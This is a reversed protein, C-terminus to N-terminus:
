LKIIKRTTVYDKSRITVFYVGKPYSSLDIQHSSGEMEGSYIEQGNLSLIEVSYQDSFETEITLLSNTPNPFISLQDTKTNTIGVGPTVSVHCSDKFNGDSTMVYIYTQGVAIGTVTGDAVTAVAADASIWSVSPDPADAPSITHVLTATESGHLELSDKDLSIGTVSIFAKLSDLNFRWVESLASNWNRSNISYGGMLYIYNGVKQGTMDSRKFPMGEMLTWEDTTPDYEQIINSPYSKSTTFTGSDGGFLYLKEDYALSIHNLVPVPMEALEMWENQVPDYKETNGISILQNSRVQLGGCVYIENNLTCASFRELRDNLMNSLTDWTDNAPDYFLAQKFNSAESASKMGGLIFMKDNLVCSANSGSNVPFEKITKWSDNESNYEFSSDITIWSSTLSSNWGGTVYIKDKIAEANSWVIDIPINKKAEWNDTETNYFETTNLTSVANNVGGFVYILSDIVCSQSGGKAEDM